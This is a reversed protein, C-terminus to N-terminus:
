KNWLNLSNDSVKYKINKTDVIEIKLTKRNCRWAKIIKAEKEDNKSSYIAIIEPDFKENFRCNRTAISQNNKKSAFVNDLLRFMGRHNISYTEEFVFVFENKSNTKQRYDIAYNDDLATSGWSTGNYEKFAPLDKINRYLLSDEVKVITTQTEFKYKKSTSVVIHSNGNINKIENYLTDTKFESPIDDEGKLAKPNFLIYTCDTLWKIDLATISGTRIDNEIQKHESRQITYVSNDVLKFVGTKFNSCKSSTSAARQGNSQHGFLMM